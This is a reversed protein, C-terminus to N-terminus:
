AAIRKESSYALLDAFLDGLVSPPDAGSHVASDLIDWLISPTEEELDSIKRFEEAYVFVRWERLPIEEPADGCIARAREDFELRRRGYMAEQFERWLLSFAGSSLARRALEWPTCRGDKGVKGVGAVECALKEIYRARQATWGIATSWYLGVGGLQAGAVRCWEADFTAREDDTWEDTRLLVHFHPHWGSQAGWTVELVRVSATVRRTFIDRVRRTSRVRRWASFLRVMTERLSADRSHRLTLSVMQWRGGTDNKMLRDLEAVRVAARRTACVPCANQNGCRGVGTYHARRNSGDAAYDRVVVGPQENVAVRGCFRGRRTEALRRLKARLLYM